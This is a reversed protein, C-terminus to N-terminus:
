EVIQVTGLTVETTGTSTSLRAIDPRYFGVVLQYNGPPINDDLVVTYTDSFCIGAVWRSSPFWDQRPPSDGSGVLKNENDLVQVFLTYDDPTESIIHWDLNLEFTAGAHVEYDVKDPQLLQAFNTWEAYVSRTDSECDSLVKGGRLMVAELPDNDLSTAAIDSEVLDPYRWGIRIRPEFPAYQAADHLEIHYTESYIQNVQWTDTRRLGRGPYSDLSGIGIPEYNEDPAFVQVYFSLPETTQRLPKWYLTLSLEATEEDGWIPADDITYGLFQIDGFMVYAQNINASLQEVPSTPTYAPLITTVPLSVAFYILPVLFAYKFINKRLNAQEFLHWLGLAILSSIGAIAPFLLRGQSAYTQSTWRVVGIFVILLHLAPIWAPTKPFRILFSVLGLVGIVMLVFVYDFFYQPSLVNLGGFWGWYAYFFGEREGWLDAISFDSPRRGAVDLMANLGTIDHYLNLNRLYWWGAIIVLGAICLLGTYVLETFPGKERYHIAIYTLGVVPALTLGSLKSLAALGLLISILIVSHWNRGRRWQDLLLLLTLTSLMTVLNDNNISASIYIFMPNFATLMMAFLAINPNKPVIFLAVAFVYWVTISALFISFFRGIMTALKIGQWPFAEAEPDHIIMNQNDQTLAIGIKRFPNFQIDAADDRDIPSILLATLMYYLPPQSGEQRYTTDKDSNQVPLKGTVAVTDVMGYHRPEDSTELIPATVAYFIALIIFIGLIIQRRRHVVYSHSPLQVFPKLFTLGNM